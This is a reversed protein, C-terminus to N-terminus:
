IIAIRDVFTESQEIKISNYFLAVAFQLNNIMQFHYVQGRILSFHADTYIIQFPNSM